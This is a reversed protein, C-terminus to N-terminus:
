AARVCVVKSAFEEGGPGGGRQAVADANLTCDIGVRRQAVDVDVALQGVLAV